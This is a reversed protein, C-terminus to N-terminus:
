KRYIFFASDTVPIHETTLPFVRYERFGMNKLDAFESLSLVKGGQASLALKMDFFVNEVPSLRHDELYFDHIVWYGGPNLCQFVKQAIDMIEKKALGRISTFFTIMDVAQDFSLTRMDERRFTVNKLRHQKINKAAIDLIDENLDIGVCVLNPNQLAMAALHFGQGCGIDQVSLAQNKLAPILEALCAVLAPASYKGLSTIVELDDSDLVHLYEGKVRQAYKFAATYVNALKLHNVLFPNDMIRRTIECLRYTNKNKEIFNLAWLANLLTEWAEPDCGKEKAMEMMDIIDAGGNLEAQRLTEFLGLEVASFLIGLTEMDRILTFIYPSALDTRRDM